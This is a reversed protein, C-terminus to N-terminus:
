KKGEAPNVNIKIEEQEEKKKTEKLYFNLNNIQSKKKLLLM